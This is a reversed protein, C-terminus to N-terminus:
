LAIAEMQLGTCLQAAELTELRGLLETNESINSLMWTGRMVHLCSVAVCLFLLLWQLDRWRGQRIDDVWILGFVDNSHFFSSNM